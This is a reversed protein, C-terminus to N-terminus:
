EKVIESLYGDPAIISEFLDVQKREYDILSENSFDRIVYTKNVLVNKALFCMKDAVLSLSDQGAQAYINVDSTKLHLLYHEDKQYVEFSYKKNYGHYDQYIGDYKDLLEEEKFFGDDYLEGDDNEKIIEFVNLNMVLPYGLYEFVVGINKFDIEKLDSSAYYDFYLTRNNVRVLPQKELATGLFTLDNTRGCATLLCLLCLLFVLRKM